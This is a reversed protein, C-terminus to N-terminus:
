NGNEVDAIEIRLSSILIGVNQSRKQDLLKAVQLLFIVNPGNYFFICTCKKLSKILAFLLPLM